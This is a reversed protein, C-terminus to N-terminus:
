CVYEVFHKFCFQKAEDISSISNGNRTLFPHPELLFEKANRWIKISLAPRMINKASFRWNWQSCWFLYGGACMKQALVYDNCFQLSRMDYRLM